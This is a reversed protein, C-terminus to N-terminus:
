EYFYKRNRTLYDVLDRWNLVCSHLLCHKRFQDALKQSETKRISAVFSHRWLNWYRILYKKKAIEKSTIRQKLKLSNTKARQLWEYLISHLRKNKIFVNVTESLEKKSLKRVAYESLAKLCNAKAKRNTQKAVERGAKNLDKRSIIISLLNKLAIKKLNTKCKDQLHNIRRKMSANSKLHEFAKRLYKVELNEKFRLVKKPLEAWARVMRRKVAMTM